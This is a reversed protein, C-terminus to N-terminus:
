SDPGIVAARVRRGSLTREVLAGQCASSRTASKGSLRGLRGSRGSRNAPSHVTSEAARDVQGATPETPETPETQEAPSLDQFSGLRYGSATILERSAPSVLM